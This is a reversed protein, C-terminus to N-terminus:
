GAKPLADSRSVSDGTDATVLEDHDARVKAVLLLDRGDGAPDAGAQGDGDLDATLLDGGGDTDSDGEPLRFM